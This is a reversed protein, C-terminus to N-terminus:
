RGLVVDIGSLVLDLLRRPLKGACETLQRKDLAVILSVNAVSDKALGTSEAGLLLNGPADAWKLNSTLPVCVVTGVRSQNLADCQVVVVPRRYGPGSGTPEGLDAWWVEGQGIVM